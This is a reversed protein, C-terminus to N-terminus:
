DTEEMVKDIKERNKRVLELEQPAPRGGGPLKRVEVITRDIDALAQEKRAAPIDTIKALEDRQVQLVEVMSKAEPFEMIVMAAVVQHFVYIFRDMKWGMRALQEEAQVPLRGAFAAMPDALGGLRGENEEVWKNFTPLDAMWKDLEAQTFPKPAIEAALAPLAALIVWLFIASIAVARRIM